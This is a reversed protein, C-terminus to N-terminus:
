THGEFEEDNIATVSDFEEDLIEFLKGVDVIARRLTELLRERGINPLRDEASKWELARVAYVLSAQFLEPHSKILALFVTPDASGISVITGNDSALAGSLWDSAKASEAPKSLFNLLPGPNVLPGTGAKVSNLSNEFGRFARYGAFQSYALIQVLVPESIEATLCQTVEVIATPFLEPKRRTLTIFALPDASGLAVVRGDVECSGVLFKVPSACKSKADEEIEIFTALVRWDCTTSLLPSSLQAAFTLEIFSLAFFFRM